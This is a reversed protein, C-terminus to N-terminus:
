LHHGTQIRRRGGDGEWKGLGRSSNTWLIFFFGFFFVQCGEWNGMMCEQVVVSCLFFFLQSFTVFANSKRLLLPAWVGQSSTFNPIFPFSFSPVTLFLCIYPVNPTLLYTHSWILVNWLSAAIAGGWCFGWGHAVGLHQTACGFHGKRSRYIGRSHGNVLPPQQMHFLCKTSPLLLLCGKRLALLFWADGGRGWRVSGWSFVGRGSHGYVGCTEVWGIGFGM